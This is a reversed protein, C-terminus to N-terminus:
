NTKPSGRPQLICRCLRCEAPHGRRLRQYGIRISETRKKAVGRNYYADAYDANLRIAEDYDSIATEYQELLPGQLGEITIFLLCSSFRPRIAEDYDAIAAEPQGLASKLAGRNHYADAYDPNLALAKDYASLAEEKREGESLLSGISLWAHAALEDNVGERSLRSPVGNKSPRRSNVSRKKRGYIEEIIRFFFLM